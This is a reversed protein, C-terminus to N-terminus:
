RNTTAKPDLIFQIKHDNRFRKHELIKEEEGNISYRGFVRLANDEGEFDMRVNLCSGTRFQMMQRWFYTKTDELNVETRNYIYVDFTWGYSNDVASYVVVISSSDYEREIVKFHKKNLLDLSPSETHYFPKPYNRDVFFMDTNLGSSDLHISKTENKECSSLAILVIIIFSRHQIM